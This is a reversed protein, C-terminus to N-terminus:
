KVRGLYKDYWALVEHVLDDRRLRVDHPTEFVVRKKDAAPTGLMRFLPEQATTVPFTADYRGNVMLVPTTLRPAFDVQDMGAPPHANQFLGGDLFVAAKFRPELPVFIVGWAAGQSVGVYGLRTVDIDSRTELYDISRGLDKSWQVLTDRGLTPGPNPPLTKRREYFSQYVPYVVARGSKVVFDLFSLDGLDSSSPLDNVRASPFFVVPQYPPSAGRPLFLFATVRENGYAADFTIKQKTWDTSGDQVTEVSARLPTKDYAYMARYARFVDDSVPRAASFDRRLLARPALADAPIPGANRVCRFGNLPSRDFPPLAEPGYSGPQRGLLFHDGEPTANWVWERANGVLDYTGFPGLAESQGVVGVRDSLNALPTIYQDAGEPATLGVQAIVPLSKGAFEAYAAAEYWSIGTVPYEAKGDPYHGGEWTSPGPRGTPDRLLDMAETWALHQGDRVFPQRWYQRNTYGGKDVFEQYDRNTVEYVDILFAPVDYPGMWGLFALYDRWSAAPVRVMGKPASQEGALDFDIATGFAPATVLEGVGAKSVRWRLYGSPIRVNELPTVGVRLWSERPSGFDKVEVLAGPPSSHISVVRTAVATARALDTDTAGYGEARLITPYAAAARNQGALSTIEPVAEERIWQRRMARRYAIGAGLSIAIAIVVGAVYVGRMNRTVPQESRAAADLQLAAAFDACTQYRDAPARQLAKLTAARLTAPMTEAVATAPAPTQAITTVTEFLSPRAFPNIGTVAECLLIGLSFIDSRADVQSGAVQEPSMYAPTGAIMAGVTEFSGTTLAASPEVVARPRLAALGFDLVKVYGDPRVMVNEPKLDSHVIRRDHAAALARTVQIAIDIARAAPLPGSRLLDRLTRGEVFETAIFPQDGMDGVEYITIIHPHNLAALARAENRFRSVRDRDGLADPPIFKIAVPRHLQEDEARYVVGM